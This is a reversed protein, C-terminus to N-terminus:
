MANIWNEGDVMIVKILSVAGSSYNMVPFYKWTSDSCPLLGCGVRMKQHSEDQRCTKVISYM